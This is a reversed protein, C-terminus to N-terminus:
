LVPEVPDTPEAPVALPYLGATYLAKLLANHAEKAAERLLEEDTEGATEFAALASEYAALTSALAEKNLDTDDLAAIVLAIAELDLIENGYFKWEQWGLVSGLTFGAAELGNKLTSRAASVAKSLDSMKFGGSALAADKDSLAAIYADLMASLALKTEEDTVSAIALAIKETSIGRYSKKVREQNENREKNEKDSKEDAWGPKGTDREPKGSEALASASFVLLFVLSLVLPLVRTYFNKWLRKM